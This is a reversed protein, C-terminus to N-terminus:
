EKEVEAAKVDKIDIKKQCRSAQWLAVDKLGIQDTKAAVRNYYTVCQLYNLRNRYMQALQMQIALRENGLAQKEASLFHKLAKAKHAENKKKAQDLISARDKQKAATASKEGENLTKRGLTQERQAAKVSISVAPNLSKELNGPLEYPTPRSRSVSSAGNRTGINVNTNIGSAQTITYNGQELVIVKGNPSGSSLANQLNLFPLAWSGNCLIGCVANSNVYIPIKGLLWSRDDYSTSSAIDKQCLTIRDWPPSFHYSMINNWTRDVADQQAATLLSYNKGYNANAMQDISTWGSNDTLTDSCKDGGDFGATEHTHYLDLSHGAEHVFCGTICSQMLIIINNDPPFTSSGDAGEGAAAKTIGSIYVNIANTRWSWTAPDAQALSRITLKDATSSTFYASLSTPLDVMETVEFRLESDMGALVVNSWDVDDQMDANTAYTGTGAHNGDADVFFKISIRVPVDAIVTDVSLVLLLLSLCAVMGYKFYIM